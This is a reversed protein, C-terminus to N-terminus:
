CKGRDTLIQCAAASKSSSSSLFRLTHHFARSNIGLETAKHFCAIPRSFSSVAAKNNFRATSCTGSHTSNQSAKALNCVYSSALFVKFLTTVKM